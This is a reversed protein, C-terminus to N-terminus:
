FLTFIMLMITIVYGIIATRRITKLNQMSLLVILAYAAPLFVFQRKIFHFSGVGITKAVAPSASFILVAGIIGLLGILILLPKDVTWWWNAVIGRNNRSFVFM